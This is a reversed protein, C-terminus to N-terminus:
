RNPRDPKRSEVAPKGDRVTLLTIEESARDISLVLAGGAREGTEAVFVRGSEDAFAAGADFLGLYTTEGSAAFPSPALEAPGAFPDDTEDLAIAPAPSEELAARGDSASFVELTLAYRVLGSTPEYATAASSVRAANASAELSAVLSKVDGWTGRGTMRYRQAIFPDLREVGLFSLAYEHKSTLWEDIAAVTEHVEEPAVSAPVGGGAEAIARDARELRPTREDIEKRLATENYQYREYRALTRRKEELRPAGERFWYAWGAAAFAVVLVLLIVLYHARRKM